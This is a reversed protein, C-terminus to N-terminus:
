MKCPQSVLNAHKSWLFERSPHWTMKCPQLPRSTLKLFARVKAAKGAPLVEAMVNDVGLQEAVIRATTWNDGSVMYCQLLLNHELLLPFLDAASLWFSM